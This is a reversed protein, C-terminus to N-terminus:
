LSLIFDTLNVDKKLLLKKRLRYRHNEVGRYSIRLLPAIEKSSLNMRLYACLRLDSHSLHPYKSTLKQLFKEHAKEFHIEFVNWDDMSSINNDIKRVLRTHYKEPFRTGLEEKQAKLIEKLEMLFENKRIIAMTSTALEQSKFSLEANLKENRLRVLEQEKSRQIRMERARIRRLLLTRGLLFLLIVLLLYVLISVQSQYWPKAVILKITTEQSSRRWENFARVRITYEGAPIRTFDFVPKDLPESWAVDLGEVFSAFSYVGPSYHPFAFALTLSNRNYPIRITGQDLPLHETVGSRGRITIGRVVLHKEEIGSSLDPVGARLIAYGNDLCLLAETTSIPVINEYGAILHDRFLETPYERVLSTGQDSIRFLGIHEKGIFWYHQDGAAVVRHARAHVGLSQNLQGYPVITDNLDSYTFFQTGTSFVIRNGINFVHIGYEKGFVKEGYYRTGTVTKHEDDLKLRYIGRYMHSAWINNFYDLQIYRILDQFGRLQYNYSWNQDQKQYFVINTYTSQVLLNQKLPDRTISFGGSVGSIQQASHNEIRFTGVNHGVILQGDFVDCSWAQGQTGPILRFADRINERDRYFVGQNTCLYLDGRYIAASYIAGIDGYEYVTYSPEVHFSVFDIGRDLALWINNEEDCYIGLVTNNQLGNEHNVRHLLKGQPDFVVIGDLLTGVVINGEMTIAGRNIENESFYDRWEELFPSLQNEKYLYLGNSATGILLSSDPLSLFFHVYMNSIETQVLFPTLISDKVMFLGRGGISVCLQGRYQSIANISEGTRIVSFAEGNYVFISSFSHFYVKDGIIVTNWFEENKGFLHAALSNLSQYILEGKGSREWYGIEMYGSTYIRQNRDVAVSRIVTGNPSPYFSWEVGDFELLGANNAAYIYGNQGQTLSWNQSEAKYEQKEFNRVIHPEQQQATGNGSTLFLIFVALLSSYRM